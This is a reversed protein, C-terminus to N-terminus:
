PVSEPVSATADDDAEGAEDDTSPQPVAAIDLRPEAGAAIEAEAEAATCTSADVAGWLHDAFRQARGSAPGAPDDDRAPVSTLEDFDLEGFAVLHEDDIAESYWGTQTWDGPGAERDYLKRSLKSFLPLPECQGRRWLDVVVALASIARARRDDAGRGRPVLELPDPKARPGGTDARRVVVSRWDPDPDHAVLAILDLWAALHQKPAAKSFTLRAPGPHREGGRRGVEGVVRTGDPLCVDITQPAAARAEVGMAAAVALLEDVQETIEVLKKDGLGGAPLTGLARERQAWEDTGAGDVRADLLRTAVTWTDLGELVTPLHDVVAVDERPLTVGLRGRLFAKVPHNVFAHLEALTVVSETDRAPLPDSVFPTAVATRRVRARAGELATPDFSWPGDARTGPRFNDEDFPQRPHVTEIQDAYRARGDGALTAAITDRLEAVAVAEPVDQNTVENHGTRTIVLHDGAALVAELLMQRLEARADRDGVRPAQVALDDGDPARTTMAREDLGLLCVVRFPLWRLPTLSTFTIGGRFFEPRRPAGVLRERLLHRIDALDLEVTATSGGVRADDQVDALVRHLRDLEWQQSPRIGLLQQAADLLAACWAAADRPRALEGALAGLRALIDALRGAVTIEGGEVGLPAIGGPGLAAEDDTVAVGLLLRDLAARWSNATFSAPVGWAERHQGDVGWRVNTEAVWRGVLAIAEDDLDFRTRVPPLSVFELVASATFRGAVLELLSELAALLPHADRLDRDGIRYSLRPLAPANSGRAEVAAGFAADIWPAFEEIAPSLVVIDEERLTPDDALLHLIADRLVEVQRALGHCSHLQVSRDTRDLAFDGAPTADARLDHQLRALLSAPPPDDTVLTRTEGPAATALLVARERAPRGWSRLLPHALTDLTTDDARLMGPSAPRAQVAAEVERRATLSPDLLMLHIDRHESLAGVLELFPRGGPLTTVGFLAVRSPLEPVLTGSRLEDLLAPLREPPSPAGIRERVLRFLYPQWRDHDALPNGAADVDRGANWRALLEPRRVAYRDLLDAIRRARGFWTAGDPLEALPGLRADRRGEHLVELVSWVLHRVLWPDDDGAGDRGAALVAQRLAGPYHFGINAAVGDGRGPTSAGLSRALELELWRQMGGTPVGVWESRMPDALPVTLVDALAGALPQVRDAATLHLM